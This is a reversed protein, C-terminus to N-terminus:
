RKACVAGRGLLNGVGEGGHCCQSEESAPEPSFRLPGGGRNSKCARERPEMPGRQNQMDQKCLCQRGKNRVIKELINTTHVVKSSLSLTERQLFSCTQKNDPIIFIINGKLAKLDPKRGMIFSKPEEVM